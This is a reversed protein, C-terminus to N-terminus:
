GDRRARRRARDFVVDRASEADCRAGLVGRVCGGSVDIGVGGDDRTAGMTPTTRTAGDDDDDDDDNVDDDDETTRQRRAACQRAACQRGCRVTARPRRSVDM